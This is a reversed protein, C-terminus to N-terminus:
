RSLAALLRGGIHGDPLLGARGQWDIVAARTKPGLIGDPQGIDYGKRLLQAQVERRAAANLATDQPWATVFGGTGLIRDALHGVALAYSDSNNYRKIVDFNALVLFVPGSGGMPMLLRAADTDRPFPRGNARGVGQGRWGALPLTTGAWAQRYDFGRPLVVEYGWTEDPHWGHERLYNATSALADPVSGWIDKHGDGRFDVAYRVFSTPMFQPHGMAGAWSGIMDAPAVHGAALVDLATLLENGFYDPRYGGWTLTALAHVTNNGGLFGGYNTEMGWIALVAEAQVGYRAEVAALTQAWEASKDRGKAAQAVTVRKGVYDATTSVFEPQKRSLELVKDIPRFGGMAADFIRRPVGRASAQQWVGAVFGDVSGALAPGAAGAAVLAALGTAFRRRSLLFSVDQVDRSM